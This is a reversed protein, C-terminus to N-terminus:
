SAHSASNSLREQTQKSARVFPWAPTFWSKLSVGTNRIDNMIHFQMHSFIGPQPAAKYGLRNTKGLPDLYGFTMADPGFVIFFMGVSAKFAKLLSWFTPVHIYSSKRQNEKQEKTQSHLVAM